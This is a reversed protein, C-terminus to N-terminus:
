NLPQGAAVGEAWEEEQIVKCDILGALESFDEEGGAFSYLERMQEASCGFERCFGDWNKLVETSNETSTAATNLNM